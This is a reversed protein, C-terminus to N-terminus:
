QAAEKMLSRLLAAVEPLVEDPNGRIGCEMALWGDYRVDHLAQMLGGWDFHGTGPQMRGSDAVHVHGILRGGGRVAEAPDDEEINMHFSDAMVKASALGVARCIDAAQTVRNVMHDEYRNLPEFLVAVGLALAHEALEGVSEILVERDEEPTRVPPQWPPLANSWVGFSAPTVAGAGGVEGIVSLLSKMNDMADRRRVPDTDGIFHDMAVCVSSIVVGDARASRLEGLRKEFEFDGPGLLEIGDFGARSALEWKEQLTEGPILQEQCAFKM